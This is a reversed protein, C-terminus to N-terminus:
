SKPEKGAMKEIFYFLHSLCFIVKYSGNCEISKGPEVFIDKNAHILKVFENGYKRDIGFEVKKNNGRNYMSEMICIGMIFGLHIFPVVHLPSNTHKSESKVIDFNKLISILFIAAIKHSDIKDHHDICMVHTKFCELMKDYDKLINKIVNKDFSISIECEKAQEQLERISKLLVTVYNKQKVKTLIEPM